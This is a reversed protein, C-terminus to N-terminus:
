RRDLIILRYIRRLIFFLRFKKLLNITIAKYRYKKFINVYKFDSYYPDALVYDPHILPFTLEKTPVFHDFKQHGRTSIGKIGINDVLNYKPIICLGSNALCAFSWQIDWNEVENKFSSDFSDRVFNQFGRKDSVTRHIGRRKLNTWDKINIDYYKWARRWSAWGWTETYKYFFYSEPVRKRSDIESNRGGIVMIREDYRYKVLLEDCFKFFSENPICDDELIIGMEENQFFWSIASALFKLGVNKKQFFTKIQCAWDINDIVYNRVSKVISDEDKRDSRPGDSALYIVSPSINKIAEFSRRVYEPRNFVIYLIPSTIKNKNEM